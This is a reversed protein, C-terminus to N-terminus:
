TRDDTIYHNYKKQKYRKSYNKNNKFFNLKKKVNRVKTKKLRKKRNRSKKFFRQM